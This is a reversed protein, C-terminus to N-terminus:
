AKRWALLVIPVLVLGDYLGASVLAPTSRELAALVALGISGLTAVGLITRAALISALATLVGIAQIRAADHDIPDPAPPVLRLTPAEESVVRVTMDWTGRHPHDSNKKDRRWKVTVSGKVIHALCHM